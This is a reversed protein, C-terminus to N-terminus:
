EPEEVVEPEPLVQTDLWAAFAEDQVPIVWVQCLDSDDTDGHVSWAVEMESSVESVGVNCELGYRSLFWEVICDFKGVACSRDEHKPCLTMTVSLESRNLQLYLVHGDKHWVVEQDVLM